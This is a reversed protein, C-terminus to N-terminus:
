INGRSCEAQFLPGYVKLVDSLLEVMKLCSNNDRAIDDITPSLSLEDINLIGYELFLQQKNKVNSMEIYPFMIAFVYFDPYNCQINKIISIADGNGAKILKLQEAVESRNDISSKDNKFSVFIQRLLLHEEMELGLFASRIVRISVHYFSKDYSADLACNNFIGIEKFLGFLSGMIVAHHIDQKAIFKQLVPKDNSDLSYLM